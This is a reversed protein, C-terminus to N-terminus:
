RRAARGLSMLFGRLKRFMGATAHEVTVVFSTELAAYTDKLLTKWGFGWPPNLYALPGIRLLAAVRRRLSFEGHVIARLRYREALQTYRLRLMELPGSQTEPTLAIMRLLMQCRSESALANMTCQSDTIGRLRYSLPLRVGPGVANGGHQRYNVLLEPIYRIRKLASALFFFFQDHAMPQGPRDHDMSLEYLQCYRLLSRRFIMTFGYPNRFPPLDLATAECSPIPLRTLRGYPVLQLM